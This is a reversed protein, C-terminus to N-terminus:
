LQYEFGAIDFRSSPFSSTSFWWMNGSISPENTSNWCHMPNFVTRIVHYMQPNSVYYMHKRRYFRKWRDTIQSKDANLKVGSLPSLEFFVIYIHKINLFFLILSLEVYFFFFTSFYTTWFAVCSVLVLYSSVFVRLM